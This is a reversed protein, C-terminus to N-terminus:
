KELETISSALKEIEEVHESFFEPQSWGKIYYFNKSTEAAIVLFQLERTKLKYIQSPMQGVIRQMPGTPRDLVDSFRTLIEMSFEDLSMAIQIKSFREILAFVGFGDYGLQVHMVFLRDESAQPIQDKMEKPVQTWGAPLVVGFSARESKVKQPQVLNKVDQKIPDIALQPVFLSLSVFLLLAFPVFIAAFLTTSRSLPHGLDKCFPRIAERLGAASSGAQGLIWRWRPVSLLRPSWDDDFAIWRASGIREPLLRPFLLRVHERFKKYQDEASERTRRNASPLAILTRSPAVMQVIESIEWSIGRTVGAKVVVVAARSMLGSVVSQWDEGNTYMRAAGLPPLRDGPQGIAIVPGLESLIRALYEEFTPSHLKQDATFSRLYLIPPRSDSHLMENATKASLRRGITRVFRTLFVIVLTLGGILGGTILDRTTESISGSRLLSSTWTLLIVFLIFMLAYGLGKVLRGAKPRAKSNKTPVDKSM